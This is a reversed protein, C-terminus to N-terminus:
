AQPMFQVALLPEPQQRHGSENQDEVRDLQM